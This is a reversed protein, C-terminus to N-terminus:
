RWAGAIFARRNAFAASGTFDGVISFGAGTTVDSAGSQLLAFGDVTVTTDVDETAGTWTMASGGYGMAGALVIGGDLTAGTMATADAYENATSVPTSSVLDYAAWVLIGCRSFTGSTGVAVTGTASAPVDAVGWVMYAINGSVATYEFGGHLSASIGAITISNITRGTVTTDGWACVINKKGAIASGLDLSNFSYSTTDTGSAARSRYSRSAPIGSDIFGTIM